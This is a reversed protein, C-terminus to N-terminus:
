GNLVEPISFVPRNDKDYEVTINLYGRANTAFVLCYNINAKDTMATSSYAISGNYGDLNRTYSTKTFDVDKTFEKDGCAIVRASSINQELREEITVVSVGGNREVSEEVATNLEKIIYDFRSDGKSGGCGTMGFVIVTVTLLSLIKKKM